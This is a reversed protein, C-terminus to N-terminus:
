SQSPTQPSPSPFFRDRFHVVGQLIVRLRAGILWSKKPEFDTVIGVLKVSSGDVWWIAGGSLCKPNLRKSPVDDILHQRHYDLVLNHKPNLLMNKGRSSDIFESSLVISRINVVGLEREMTIAQEPYGTVACTAPFYDNASADLTDRTVPLFNYGAKILSEVQWQELKVFSVDAPHQATAESTLECNSFVSSELRFFPVGPLVIPGKVKAALVHAATFLCDGEISHLLM